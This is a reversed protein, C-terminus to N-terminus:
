FFGQILKCSIFSFDKIDRLDQSEQGQGSHTILYKQKYETPTRLTNKLQIEEVIPLGRAQGTTSNRLSEKQPGKTGLNFTLDELVVPKISVMFRNSLFAHPSQGEAQDQLNLIM